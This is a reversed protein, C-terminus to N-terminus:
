KAPPSKMEQLLFDIARPLVTDPLNRARIVGQADILFLTPWADIWWREAIPGRNGDMWSRWTIRERRMAAKVTERNPDSNVGLFVFPQDAYQQVLSREFPYM